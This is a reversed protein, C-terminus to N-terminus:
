EAEAPLFPLTMAEMGACVAEDPVMLVKDGVTMGSGVLPINRITVGEPLTEGCQAAAQRIDEEGETM